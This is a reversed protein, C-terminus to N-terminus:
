DEIVTSLKLLKSSIKLNAQRAAALNIQMRIRKNEVNLAITGGKSAFDSGEGVLLVPKGQVIELIEDLSVYSKTSIFAIHCEATNDLDRIRRVFIPHDHVKESTISEDLTRGFPDEGVLCVQFPSDAASFADQPWSIFQTFNYLFAAKLEYEAAEAQVPRSIFFITAALSLSLLLNRM